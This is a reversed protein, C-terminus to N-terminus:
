YDSEVLLHAMMMPEYFEKIAKEADEKKKFFLRPFERTANQVAGLSLLSDIYFDQEVRFYRIWQMDTVSYSNFWLNNIDEDDGCRSVCYGFKKHKYVYLKM